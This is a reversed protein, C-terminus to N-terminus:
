GDEKIRPIVRDLALNIIKVISSSSITAGTIAQIQNPKSPERGKVYDIGSLIRLNKFQSKFDLSAIKGGLGPTEINELIEIGKIFKLDKSLIILVKIEGQYGNGKAIIAYSILSSNDDYLYFVSYGDIDRESNRSVGSVLISVSREFEKKKNEEIKSKTEQYMYTLTFGSFVAVLGLTLSMKYLVKM